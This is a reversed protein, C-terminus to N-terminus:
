RTDGRITLMIADSICRRPRVMACVKMAVVRRSGSGKTEQANGSMVDFSLSDQPYNRIQRYDDRSCAGVKLLLERSAGCRM